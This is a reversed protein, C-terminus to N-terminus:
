SRHKSADCPVCDVREGEHEVLNKGTRHTHRRDDQRRGDRRFDPRRARQRRGDGIYVSLLVAMTKNTMRTDTPRCSVLAYTIHQSSKPNMNTKIRRYTPANEEQAPFAHKWFMNWVNTEADSLVGGGEKPTKPLAFAEAIALGIPALIDVLMQQDLCCITGVRDSFIPRFDARLCREWPAPSTPYARGRM